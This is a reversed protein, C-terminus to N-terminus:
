ILEAVFKCDVTAGNLSSSVFSGHMSLYEFKKIHLSLLEKLLQSCSVWPLFAFYISVSVISSHFLSVNLVEENTLNILKFSNTRSLPMNVLIIPSKGGNLFNSTLFFKSDGMKRNM